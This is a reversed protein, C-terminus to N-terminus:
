SARMKSDLNQGDIFVLPIEQEISALLALVKHLKYEKEDEEILKKSPTFKRKKNCLHSTGPRGTYETSIGKWQKKYM